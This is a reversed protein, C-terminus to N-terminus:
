EDMDMSDGMEMDGDGEYEEQNGSFSRAPAQFSLTSDDAFTLKVTVTDGPQVPKTVDMFMLHDSGPDLEHTGHAPIAFGGDKERMVMAGDDGTAMEHLELSSSAASTASVVTAKAEGTNRLTGFAATMGSDAAKVWPDEISVTSAQTAPASEAEGGCAATLLLVVSAAAAAARHRWRPATLTNM